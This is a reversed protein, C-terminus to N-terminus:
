DRRLFEVELVIDIEDSILPTGRKLGWESRKIRTTASFGSVWKGIYVPNISSLPYEGTFNWRVALAVPRTLGLITLEGDIEGTREGVKRVGSSRFTITPHAAVNFFDPTKLHDDLAKVGTQVSAVKITAEVSGGVPDTPAFELTADFDIFRGSKRSLGLHDWSFRIESHQKDIVWTDARAPLAALLLAAAATRLIALWPRMSVFSKKSGNDCGVEKM